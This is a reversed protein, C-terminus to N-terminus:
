DALGLSRLETLTYKLMVTINKGALNKKEVYSGIRYLSFTQQWVVSGTTYNTTYKYKALAPLGHEALTANIADFKKYVKELDSPSLVNKQMGQQYEKFSISKPKILMLEKPEGNPDISLVIYYTGKKDHWLDGFHYIGKSNRYVVDNEIHKKEAVVKKHEALRISDQIRTRTINKVTVPKGEANVAEAKYLSDNCTYSDGAFYIGISHRYDVDNDVREFDIYKSENVAFWKDAKESCEKAKIYNISTGIGETYYKSITRLAPGYGTDAAQKLLSFRLDDCNKCKLWIYSLYLVEPDSCGLEIAISLYSRDDFEVSNMKNYHMLLAARLMDNYDKRYNYNYDKTYCEIAKKINVNTGYGNEYCQGLIHYGFNSDFTLEKVSDIAERIFIFASDKNQTIGNGHWYCIGLLLKGDAIGKHASKKYYSVAKHINKQVGLGLNYMYGIEADGSLYGFELGRHYMRMAIEYNKTVGLGSMYMNGLLYCAEGYGEKAASQLYPLAKSYARWEYYEKGKTLNDAWLIHASLIFILSFIVKRM